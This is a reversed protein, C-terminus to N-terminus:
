HGSHLRAGYMNTMTEPDCTHPWMTENENNRPRARTWLKRWDRRGIAVIQEHSSKFERCILPQFEWCSTQCSSMVCAPRGTESNHSYPCPLRHINWDSKQLITKVYLYRDFGHIKRFCFSPNHQPLSFSLPISHLWPQTLSCLLPPNPITQPPPASRLSKTQERAVASAILWRTRESVPSDVVCVYSLGLCPRTRTAM